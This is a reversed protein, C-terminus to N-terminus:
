MGLGIGLKILGYVIAIAGTIVAAIVTHKVWKQEELMDDIQKQQQTDVIAQQELENRVSSIDDKNKYIQEKIKDMGDIKMEIKILRDLVEREFSCEEM